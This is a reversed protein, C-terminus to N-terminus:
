IANQEFFLEGDDAGHVTDALVQRLQDKDLGYSELM